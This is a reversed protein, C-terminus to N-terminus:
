DGTFRCEKLAFESELGHDILVKAARDSLFQRQNIMPDFWFDPGSAAARHVFVDLRSLDQSLNFGREPHSRYLPRCRETLDRDVTDKLNAFEFLFFDVDFESELDARYIPMRTLRGNGLELRALSAAVDRSLFIMSNILFVKTTELLAATSGETLWASGRDYWLGSPRLQDSLGKGTIYSANAKAIETIDWKGKAGPRFLRLPVTKLMPNSMPLMTWIPADSM